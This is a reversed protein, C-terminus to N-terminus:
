GKRKLLNKLESRRQKYVEDSIKGSRHQDDLAIIADMVSDSDDYEDEVDDSDDGQKKDRMYMWVGVVILALGFAGIGFLLTQNQTIDPSVATNAPEGKLTFEIVGGKDVGLGRYIHFATSQISQVGGDILANGEATVGDPLYLVVGGIPTVATQSFVIEKSKPMTAFAILGYTTDSPPMAFGDTIPLFKASDQTAEYGLSQAGDPFSVFPVRGESDQTVLITNESRNAITYVTFVQAMDSSALDFFIDVSDISLNSYDTTTPYVVVDSLTLENADAPVVAFETQYSMGGLEFDALYIQSEVIPTDFSYTGDANVTGNLTVIETPGANPDGGHDYGHLTIVLDSPLPKGARNDIFGNVLGTDSFVSDVAPESTAGADEVAVPTGDVSVEPTAAEANVPAETAFDVVPVDPAAFTLTRVYAAVAYADEDSLGSGFAPVNDGGERILKVIADDSLASMTELNNFINACNSCNQEFIAKGVDVQEQSTHLTLAYSVVDWREQSSLSVFPPMFRDLNGQTVQTYWEAPTADNATEPLALAAVTVPLEKGQQGDGLGTDGHCPACKEAFIVRGNSIDPATVPFLPGLTPAPTPPVYGPPPTVDAALTFNCAALLTTGIGIFFIHRLKM